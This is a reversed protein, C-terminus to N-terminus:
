KHIFLCKGVPAFHLTRRVLHPYQRFFHPSNDSLDSNDSPDSLDSLDSLASSDSSDSLDSLAPLVRLASFAAIHRGNLLKHTAKCFLGNMKGDPM